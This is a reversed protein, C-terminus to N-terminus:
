RPPLRGANATTSQWRSPSCLLNERQADEHVGVRLESHQWERLAEVQLKLLMANLCVSMLPRLRSVVSTTAVIQTARPLGVIQRSSAVCHKQLNSTIGARSCVISKFWGKLMVHQTWLCEQLRISTCSLAANEVQTLTSRLLIPSVRFRKPCRPPMLAITRQAIHM